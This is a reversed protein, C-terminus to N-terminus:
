GPHAHERAPSGGMAKLMGMGGSRVFRVILGSAALLAVINLVTTYNWIVSTAGVRAQRSTPEIGLGNFLLDVLYGAAVMALYFSGGIFLMMRTGYYKKYIV